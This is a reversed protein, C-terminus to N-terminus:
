GLNERLWIGMLELLGDDCVENGMATVRSFCVPGKNARRARLMSVRTWDWALWHPIEPLCHCHPLNIESLKSKRMENGIWRHNVHMRESIVMALYSLCNVADNLFMNLFWFTRMSLVAILISSGGACMWRGYVVSCCLLTDETIYLIKGLFHTLSIGPFLSKFYKQIILRKTLDLSDM